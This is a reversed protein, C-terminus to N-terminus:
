YTSPYPPDLPAFGLESPDDPQFNTMKTYYSIHLHCQCTRVKSRASHVTLVAHFITKQNSVCPLMTTRYLVKVLSPQPHTGDPLCTHSHSQALFSIHLM